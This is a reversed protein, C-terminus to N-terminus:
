DTEENEVTYNEKLILVSLPKLYVVTTGKQKKAIQQKKDLPKFASQHSFIVLISFLPFIFSCISRRLLAACTM